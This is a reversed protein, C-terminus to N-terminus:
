KLLSLIVNPMQNAQALMATAAQQLIQGKTLQATESAYDTDTIRSRASTLNESQATLNNIASTLRNQYAGLDGRYGNITDIADEVQGSLTVFGAQDAAGEAPSLTASTADVASFDITYVDATESFGLQFEATAPGAGDILTQGNFTTRATIADIEQILQDAEAGIATFQDTSLSANNGQTSLEKLRLLINSIESLAGEATQVMSIADNANRISQDIAKVQSSLKQSSGWGAADDKASNIRLGSSLREVSTSLASQARGLNKQAYLSAM